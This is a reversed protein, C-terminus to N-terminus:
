NWCWNKMNEKKRKRDKIKGRWKAIESRYALFDNIELDHISRVNFKNLYKEKIKKM